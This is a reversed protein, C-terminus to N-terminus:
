ARQVKSVLVPAATAGSPSPTVLRTQGLVTSTEWVQLLPGRLAPKGAAFVNGGSQRKSVNSPANSETRKATNQRRDCCILRSPLRPRIKQWACAFRWGRGSDLFRWWVDRGCPYPYRNLDMAWSRSAFGPNLVFRTPVNTRQLGNGIASHPAIM